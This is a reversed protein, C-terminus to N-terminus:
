HITTVRRIGSLRPSLHNADPAYVCYSMGRLDGGDNKEQALLYVAPSNRGRATRLLSMFSVKGEVEGL